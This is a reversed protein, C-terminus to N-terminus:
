TKRIRPTRTRTAAKPKAVPKSPVVRSNLDLDRLLRDVVLTADAEADVRIAPEADTPPELAALQSELLSAPMFHAPRHSVRDQLESKGVALYVFEVGSGRRNILARYSRKLASCAIVGSKGADLQGDVWDAVKALWPWRDDDTLPIGASMKEVNALPHLSDGEEFSWGLREALLTGVTSKGSGSVGMVVLVVPDPLEIPM